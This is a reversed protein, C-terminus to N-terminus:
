PKGDELELDDAFLLILAKRATGADEMLSNFFASMTNDFRDQKELSLLLKARSASDVLDGAHFRIQAKGRAREAEAFEEKKQAALGVESLVASYAALKLDTIARRQANLHDLRKLREDHRQQSERGRINFANSILTTALVAAVPVTASIWLATDTM